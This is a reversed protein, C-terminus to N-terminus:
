EPRDMSYDSCGSSHPAPQASTAENIRSAHNSSVNSRVLNRRPHVSRGRFVTYIRRECLCRSKGLITETQQSGTTIRRSNLRCISASGSLGLYGNIKAIGRVPIQWLDVLEQAMGFSLNSRGGGEPFRASFSLTPNTLLASQVLDAKSVGIEQFRSQFEKNNLLAIQVAEDVSVGDKLLEEVRAEVLSDSQPDYVTEAGVRQRILASAHAYDDTPM